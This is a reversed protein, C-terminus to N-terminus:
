RGPRDASENENQQDEILKRSAREISQFNKAVWQSIFPISKATFMDPCATLRERRQGEDAAGAVWACAEQARSRYEHSVLETARDLAGNLYAVAANADRLDPRSASAVGVAQHLLAAVVDEQQMGFSFVDGRSDRVNAVASGLSWASRHIAVARHDSISQADSCPREYIGDTAVGLVGEMEGGHDILIARVLAMRADVTNRVVDLDGHGACWESSIMEAVHGLAQSQVWATDANEPDVLEVLEEASRRSIPLACTQVGTM